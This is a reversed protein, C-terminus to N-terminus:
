VAKNSSTASLGSLLSHRFSGNMFFFDSRSTLLWCAETVGGAGFRAAISFGSADPGRKLCKDADVTAEVMSKMAVEDLACEEGESLGASEVCEFDEAVDDEM